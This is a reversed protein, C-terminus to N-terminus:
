RSAEVRAIAQVIAERIIRYSGLLDVTGKM